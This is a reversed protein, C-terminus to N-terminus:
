GNSEVLEGNLVKLDKNVITVSTGSVSIGCKALFNLMAADLNTQTLYEDHTHEVPIRSDSLRSDNGECVTDKIKGFSKNFATNKEFAKEAGVSYYDLIVDGVMKNVSSVAGGTISGSVGNLDEKFRRLAENIINETNARTDNVDDNFYRNIINILYSDVTDLSKIFINNDLKQVRM